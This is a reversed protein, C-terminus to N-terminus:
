LSSFECYRQSGCSKHVHHGSHRLIVDFDLPKKCKACVAGQKIGYGKGLYNMVDICLQNYDCWAAGAAAKYIGITTQMAEMFEKLESTLDFNPNLNCIVWIPDPYYKLYGLMKRSDEENELASNIIIKWLEDEEESKLFELAQDIHNKLLEVAENKRGMRKLLTVQADVHGHKRSKQLAKKLNLSESEHVFQAANEPSYQFILEMLTDNYIYAIEPHILNLTSLYKYLPLHSITSTVIGHDITQVNYVYFEAAKRPDVRFLREIDAPQRYKSVLNPHATLIEFIKESENEIFIDAASEVEGSKYLALAECHPFQKM